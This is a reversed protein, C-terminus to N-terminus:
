ICLNVAMNLAYDNLTYFASFWYKCKKTTKLLKAEHYNLNVSLLEEINKQILFDEFVTFVRM